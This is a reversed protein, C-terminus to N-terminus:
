RKQIYGRPSFLVKPFAARRMKDRGHKLAGAIFKASFIFAVFHNKYYV